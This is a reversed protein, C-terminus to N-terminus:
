GGPAGAGDELWRRDPGDLEVDLTRWLAEVGGPDRAGALAISVHPQALVSALAVQGATLGRARGLERARDRRARNTASDYAAVIEPATGAPGFDDAFFGNSQASWAILAVGGGAYFARSAPDMADIAGPWATQVPVALGVHASSWAPSTRGARAAYTRAAELREVTWNSVGVTSARGARVEADLADVLEDVPVTTDDRHLLYLEIHDTGLRELSATLDAQIAAPSVRSRWAADPHGGKTLIVTRERAGRAAMWRGVVSESEGHGYVAATDLLDGGLDAWRDLVAFAAGRRDLRFNVTGLGIRQLERGLSAFHHARAPSV